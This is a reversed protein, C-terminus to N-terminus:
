PRLAIGEIEVRCNERRVRAGFREALGLNTELHDTVAPAVYSSRGAALAAFLVLQDAAHRDATAGSALDALLTKAVFRGIAEASRRLAGARDAGLICGTTTHAWVALSAGPRSAARDSVREIHCILGAAALEAECAAAMRESVAREELHSSFAIGRVERVEGPENLVLPVLPGRVPDVQLEVVGGGAPVYGARVVRLEAAGGMRGLLPSLVHAIHHPSPAFDQFVGGTIRAAIPRKAFCALPLIGLALMTTSGATGIDWSYTGGRIERGPFFTFERAGVALGEVRGGCLDACAQVATVHQARLGPKQRKARANFLHLPRRGLAAFAAAIRVITGSGSWQGGDIQIMTEM